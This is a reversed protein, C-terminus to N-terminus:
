TYIWDQEFCLHVSECLLRKLEGSVLPPCLKHPDNAVGDKRFLPNILKSKLTVIREEVPIITHAPELTSAHIKSMKAQKLSPARPIM